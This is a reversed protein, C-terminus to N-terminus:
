VRLCHSRESWTFKQVREAQKPSTTYDWQTRRAGSLSRYWSSEEHSNTRFTPVFTDLLGRASASLLWLPNVAKTQRFVNDEGEARHINHTSFCKSFPPMNQALKTSYKKSYKTSYKISYNTSYKTSYTTSYKTSYKTCINLSLWIFHIFHFCCLTIIHPLIAIQIEPCNSKGLPM